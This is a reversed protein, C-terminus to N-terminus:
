VFGVFAHVGRLISDKTVYKRTIGNEAHSEEGEAGIRNYEYRALDTIVQYYNDIDAMLKERALSNDDLYGVAAYNRRQILERIALKVKVTLIAANFTPEDGLEVTLTNVIDAQLEDLSNFM